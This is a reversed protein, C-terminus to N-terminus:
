SLVVIGEVCQRALTYPCRRTPTAVPFVFWAMAGCPCIMATAGCGVRRRAGEPRELKVAALVM